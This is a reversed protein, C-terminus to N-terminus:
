ISTHREASRSRVPDDTPAARSSAAREHPRKEVSGQLWPPLDLEQSATAMPTSHNGCSLNGGCTPQPSIHKSSTMRQDLLHTHTTTPTLNTTMAHVDYTRQNSRFTVIRDGNCRATGTSSRDSSSFLQPKNTASDAGASPARMASSSRRWRNPSTM